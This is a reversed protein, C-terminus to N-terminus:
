KQETLITQLNARCERVPKAIPRRAVKTSSNPVSRFTANTEPSAQPSEEKKGCGAVFLGIVVPILAKMTSSFGVEANQNLSARHTRVEIGNTEVFRRLYFTSRRHKTKARAKGPTPPM